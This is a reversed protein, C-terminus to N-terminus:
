RIELEAGVGLRVLVVGDIDSKVHREKEPKLLAFFDLEGRELRSAARVSRFRIRLWVAAM